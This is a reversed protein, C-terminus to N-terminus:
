KINKHTSFNNGIIKLDNKEYHKWINKYKRIFNGAQHNDELFSKDIDWYIDTNKSSLMKQFLFEEAKNLANFGIFFFKKEENRSIFDDIKNVAERYILGQYGINNDRLYNYFKPYYEGLKGIFSFHDKVLGTEKFTGKVSWKKLREIDRLYIFLDKSNILHQDIENFDQLVTHAWSSFRDFSDPIKETNKYITYFHFLLEINDVKNIESVNEIFMGINQIEPLFGASIKDKFAQKVFVGARQSPLIFVVNEFSKTTRLIADITESIFSQM